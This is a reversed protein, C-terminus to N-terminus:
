SRESRWASDLRQGIAADGNVDDVRTTILHSDIQARAAPRCLLRIAFKGCLVGFVVSSLSTSTFNISRASQASQPRQPKREHLKCDPEPQRNRIREGSEM